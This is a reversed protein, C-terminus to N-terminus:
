WACGGLNQFPITDVECGDAVVAKGAAAVVLVVTALGPENTVVEVQGLLSQLLGPLKVHPGEVFIDLSLRVGPLGARIHRRAAEPKEVDSDGRRGDPAPDQGVISTSKMIPPWVLRSQREGLQCLDPLSGYGLSLDSWPNQLRWFSSRCVVRHVARLEFPQGHLCPEIEERPERTGQRRFNGDAFADCSSEAISRLGDDLGPQSAAKIMAGSKKM